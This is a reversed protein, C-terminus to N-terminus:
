KLSSPWLLLATPQPLPRCLATPTIHPPVHAMTSLDRCPRRREVALPGDEGLATGCTPEEDSSCRVNGNEHPYYAESLGNRRWRIYVTLVGYMCKQSKSANFLTGPIQLIDAEQAWSM